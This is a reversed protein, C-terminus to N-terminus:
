GSVTLGWAKVFKNTDSTAVHITQATPQPKIGVQFAYNEPSQVERSADDAVALNLDGGVKELIGKLATSDSTLSLFYKKTLPDYDYINFKYEVDIKTMENYTLTAIKQKNATSVQGGIYVADTVGTNWLINNLVAVCKLETTGDIPSKCAQDATIETDGIKISILFGVTTNKDKKYNYGQYVDCRRAFQPM